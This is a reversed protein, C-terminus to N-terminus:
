MSNTGFGGYLQQSSRLRRQMTPLAREFAGCSLRLVRSLFANPRRKRNRARCLGSAVRPTNLGHGDATRGQHRDLPRHLPSSPSCESYVIHARPPKKKKEKGEILLM